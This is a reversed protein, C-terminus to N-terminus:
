KHDYFKTGRQEVEKYETWTLKTIYHYKRWNARRSYRPLRAMAKIQKIVIVAGYNLAPQQEQRRRFVTKIKSLM